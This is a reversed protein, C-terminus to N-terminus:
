ATTEDYVTRTKLCGRLIGVLRNTRTLVQIGEPESSDQDAPRLQHSDTRVMDALM